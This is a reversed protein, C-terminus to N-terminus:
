KVDTKAQKDLQRYQKGIRGRLLLALALSLGVAGLGMVVRPDAGFYAMLGGLVLGAGTGYTLAFGNVWKVVDWPSNRALLTENVWKSRRQERKIYEVVKM